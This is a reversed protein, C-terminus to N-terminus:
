KNGNQEGIPGAVRDICYDIAQEFRSFVQHAPPWSPVAGRHANDPSRLCLRMFKEEPVDQRLKALAATLAPSEHDQASVLCVLSLVEPAVKPAAGTQLEEPMIRRADFHQARLVQVLVEAALEDIEEGISMVLIISGAPVDLPGQWRGSLHERRQRLQHALSEGDLVSVRKVRRGVRGELAMLVSAIANGVKMREDASIEQREFDALALFLAPVLVKDCYAGLSQKALFRRASAVIEHVKGSLARQYFREPQSLGSVEGFMIELFHLSRVNRGVVVLCLTLPTSLV